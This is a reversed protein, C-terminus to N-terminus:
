RHAFHGATFHDVEVDAAVMDEPGIGSLPWTGGGQVKGYIIDAATRLGEPMASFTCILAGVTPLFYADYLDNGAVIVKKGAKVSARILPRNSGSGRWFTNFFVVTDVMALREHFRAIDSEDPPTNMELYIMRDTHTRMADGFMGPHCYADNAKVHYLPIYQEVVLVKQNPDLPLLGDRNRVTIAAARHTETCVAAHRPARVLRDAKKPDPLPADLIGIAAKLRLIRRVSEELRRETLRGSRVAELIAEFCKTTTAENEKVLVIDNGAELAMVAANWHTGAYEILGAMGIADTTIVGEFGLEERLLGTVIRKSVSAPITEKDLATYANHATMIAPLGHGILRRYPLLEVRDLRKRSVRLTDLTDHADLESDGRGPFHKGTAVVGASLLGQMEALGFKAVTRPNDSFSRMGIEPNRPQLNVDLVPGHVWTIGLARLQQGVVKYAKRVLAPNGTAAMGANSPFFSLGGRVIDVSLDGEQDTVMQLPIGSARAMATEQLERIVAAFEGPGMYPSLKRLRAEGELNSIHPTVRLGGCRLNRIFHRHYDDIRTGVFNCVICQGIKDALDMKGLLTNVRDDHESM